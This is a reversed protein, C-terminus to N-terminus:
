QPLSPALWDRVWQPVDTGDERQAMREMAIAFAQKYAHRMQPTYEFCEDDLSIYMEGPTSHDECLLGIHGTMSLEMPARPGDDGRRARWTFEFPPLLMVANGGTAAYSLAGDVRSDSCAGLMLREFIRQSNLMFGDAPDDGGRLPVLPTVALEEVVGLQQKLQLLWAHLAVFTGPLCPRTVYLKLVCEPERKRRLIATADRGIDDVLPVADRLRQRQVAKPEAAALEKAYSVKPARARKKAAAASCSSREWEFAKIHDDNIDDKHEWTDDEEGYGTWRCRYKNGRKEVLFDVQYQARKKGDAVLGVASKYKKRNKETSFDYDSPALMVNGSSLAKWEDYRRGWGRWHILVTTDDGEGDISVVKAPYRVGDSHLVLVEADVRADEPSM